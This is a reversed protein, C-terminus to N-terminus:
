FSTSIALNGGTYAPISRCVGGSCVMGERNRGWSLAVRTRSHTYSFGVNYYHVGTSGHNFMDSVYISWAPAFNVEVLAAMWDDMASYYDYVNLGEHKIESKKSKLSADYLYQLEARVSMQPTFKYQVDAVVIHYKYFNSPTADDKGILVMQGGQNMYHEVTPAGKTHNYNQFCYLLNTKLKRNWQKEIGFNFNSWLANGPTFGGEEALTYYTSFNMNVKMGRKGGLLTGRRFNYYVDLQGGIEGSNGFGHTDGLQPQYPHINCLLYSHQACLAPVYNMINNDYVDGYVIPSGMWELRRGTFNVGLGGGSYGLELLQANGHKITYESDSGGDYDPNGYLRDGNDVWEFKAVYGAHEFNLRGSYGTVAAAVGLDERYFKYRDEYTTLLSGEAQINTGSLGLLSSLSLSLDAGRVQTDSFEMGYRPAGWIAKLSLIDGFQYTFRAGMMANNMGLTRDQFSRFLLGSGFQDYYTGATVSFSDDTWSMYYNTLKTGGLNNPYGSLVPQYAEMQIGASFDGQYYDAKLYNNSGIQDYPARANSVEDDIYYISNSEFSGTLYGKQEDQQAFMAVSLCLGAALLVLKKM